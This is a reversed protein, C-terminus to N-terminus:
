FSIWYFVQGADAAGASSQVVWAGGGGSVQLQGVFGTGGWTVVLASAAAPTSVPEQGAGDLADAGSALTSPAPVNTLASADLAPLVGAPALVVDASLASDPVVAVTPNPYTGTLGGGAAGSPPSPPLSAEPVGVQNGTVLDLAYFQYNHAMPSVGYYIVNDIKGYPPSYPNFAKFIVTLGAM